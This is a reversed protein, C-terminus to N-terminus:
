GREANDEDHPQDRQPSQQPDDIRVGFQPRGDSLDPFRGTREPQTAEESAAAHSPAAATRQPAQQQPVYPRYGPLDKLVKKAEGVYNFACVVDFSTAVMNQTSVFDRKGGTMAYSIVGFLVWMGVGIGMTTLIQAFMNETPSFLTMVFGIFLGFVAGQMASNLAVRAYSLKGRVQEVSVLDNGVITVGRVPFDQDALFDVMEQAKAYTDFHGIVEGRPLGNDQIFENQIPVNRAM